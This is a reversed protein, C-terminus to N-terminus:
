AARAIDDMLGALGELMEPSAILEIQPGCFPCAITQANHRRSAPDNVEAQCEPCIRFDGMSTEAREYPIDRIISYRPGCNACTTFAYRFHRDQPNLIEALCDLCTAIDPALTMAASEARHRYTVGTESDPISTM